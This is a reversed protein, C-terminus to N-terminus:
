TATKRKPTIPPIKKKDFFFFIGGSQNFAQSVVFGIITTRTFTAWTATGSISTGRVIITTPIRRRRGIIGHLVSARILM